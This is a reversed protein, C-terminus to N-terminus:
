EKTPSPQSCSSSMVRRVSLREADGLQVESFETVAFKPSNGKWATPHFAVWPDAGTAQSGRTGYSRTGVPEISRGNIATTGAAYKDCWSHHSRGFFPIAILSTITTM